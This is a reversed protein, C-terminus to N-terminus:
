VYRRVEWMYAGNMQTRLDKQIPGNGPGGHGLCHVGDGTYMEVHDYSPNYGSWAFLILDGVEAKKIANDASDQGSIAVRTGKQAMQGTWTGVNVGLADQYARWITSSCDGYGTHLPDLRGGAQSYAFRGTWSKYLDYVKQGKSQDPAPPTPPTEPQQGGTIPKGNDLSEFWNQASSKLFTTTKDGDHLYLNDGNLQIWRKKAPTPTITPKDGGETTIPESTQGFDPPASTGDWNKLMNYVTNYRNQYRGLVNHNLATSHLLDLSATASTSGLVQVASAPSQHWMSMFFIREKINNQPFGYNNCTQEYSKCDSEWLTQQAKHQEKRNAYEVFANGEARTIYRQTFDINNQEVQQALAPAAAAFRAWGEPDATKSERLMGAARSGYWQMIGLTIPDNYNVSTWTCNSEVTAIIYMAYLTQNPTFAM